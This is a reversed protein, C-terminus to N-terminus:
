GLFKFLDTDYEDMEKKFANLGEECSLLIDKSIVRIKSSDLGAKRPRKAKLDLDKLKVKKIFKKDLGFIDSIKNVYEYRTIFEAGAINFIGKKNKELLEIIGRSLAGAYTPTSCLDDAAYVTKNSRMNRIIKIAFNNSRLNVGYLQATRVILYDTLTDKIADEVELKTRGYVNIPSPRDNEKYPGNKGDFIYDTSLFVLKAGCEKAKRILNLTGKVNVEEALRPKIECLDVDTIGGAAVVVEPSFFNFIKEISKRSRLDLYFLGEHEHSCYTGLVNWKRKIADNYLRSGLVGSAGVLLLKM